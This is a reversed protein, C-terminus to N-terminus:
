SGRIRERERLNGTPIGNEREHEVVEFREKRM